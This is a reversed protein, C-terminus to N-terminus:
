QKELVVQNFFLEYWGSSGAAQAGLGSQAYLAGDADAKFVLNKLGVLSSGNLTVAFMTAVEGIAQGSPISITKAEEDLIGILKHEVGVSSLYPFFNELYVMETSGEVLSIKTTFVYEEDWNDVVPESQYSGQVSIYFPIKPVEVSFADAYVSESSNNAFAKFYYKKEGSVPVAVETAGDKVEEMAVYKSTAFNPDESVIVGATLGEASVVGSLNVKVIVSSKYLDVTASAADASVSPLAVPDKEFGAEVASKSPAMKGCSAIM